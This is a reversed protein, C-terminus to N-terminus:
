VCIWEDDTSHHEDMKDLVAEGVSLHGMKEVVVGAVYYYDEEMKDLVAEGVSINDMKNLVTAEAAKKRIMEMVSARRRTDSQEQLRKLHEKLDRCRMVHCESEKCARAHVQILCWMKKCRICGGYARVKCQIGHRFIGKVKRCDLYLCQKHRCQSAHVLLDLMNEFQLVRIKRAGLTQADGHATSPHITLKHPHNVGGDMQFCSNCVDYDRCIGCRWIQGAETYQQCVNCTSGFAFSTPNHLHYLVMMSSHKARRLTNFQYHNERCLSLFSQRTDLFESHQIEDKDETNEAVDRVEVPHFVHKDNSSIPHKDKDELKKEVGYCKDCLQFKNCSICVWRYGSVMLKGCHNCSHQLHVMIFDEKPCITEGLKQMLLLDKAANALTYAQASAKLVKKTMIKQTNGKNRLTRREAEEQHHQNIIDGAAGPWFDGDFYPLRSATLKAKSEGTSIFFQEYINTLEIVINEKSAKRLMALFERLKESNPTKQIEPHCHFICDDDKLPPCAWIYCRTFGRLKCFELYGILIEHYVFTRLAEGSVTRIEPKFYKVSDLHSIYVARENPHQCESGYEQVQIGFLCVEVGEIEQFLLIIKSKYPFELPYNEEQFIELFRQNVELMKDVSSVVRVTLSEAGPIEDISKGNLQAREQKDQTLCKFLRMEIHDSLRTKPLDKAGLTQPSPNREGREVEGIYCEDCTYKQQKGDNRRGNFLACIEHQWAKCKDCQVWWEDTEENNKKKQLREKP